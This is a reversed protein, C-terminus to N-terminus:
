AMERAGAAGVAAQVGDHVAHALSRVTSRPGSGAVVRVAFEGGGPITSFAPGSLGFTGQFGAPIQHAAAARTIAAAARQAWGEARAHDILILYGAGPRHRVEVPLGELDEALLMLNRQYRVLRSRLSDATDVNLWAAEELRSPAGRQIARAMILEEVAPRTTHAVLLGAAHRQSGGAAWKTMSYAILLEVGPPVGTTVDLLPTQTADVLVTLPKRLSAWFRQPDYLRPSPCNTLPEFLVAGTDPRNAHAALEEATRVSVVRCVDPGLQEVLSLTDMWSDAPLVLKRGAARVRALLLLLPVRVAAMGSSMVLVDGWRAGVAEAAPRGLRELVEDFVYGARAAAPVGPRRRIVAGTPTYVIDGPSYGAQWPHLAVAGEIAPAIHTGGFVLHLVQGIADAEAADVDAIQRPRSSSSAAARSVQAIQERAARVRHTEVHDSADLLLGLRGLRTELEERWEALDLDDMCELSLLAVTWRM